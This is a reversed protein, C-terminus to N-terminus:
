RSSVHFVGNGTATRLQHDIAAIWARAKKRYLKTPKAADDGRQGAFKNFYGAAQKKWNSMAVQITVNDRDELAAQAELRLGSHVEAPRLSGLM